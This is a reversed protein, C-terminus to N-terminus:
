ATEEYKIFWRRVSLPHYGMSAAIEDDTLGQDRLAKADRYRVIARDRLLATIRPRPGGSMRGIGLRRMVAHAETHCPRCLFAINSPDNNSQDGDRHHRAIRDNPPKYEPRETVGCSECPREAFRHLAVHRGYTRADNPNAARYANYCDRGCFRHGAGRQRIVGGCWGCPPKPLTRAANACAYSCFTQVTAKSRFSRGCQPCTKTM